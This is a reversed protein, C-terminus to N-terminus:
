RKVEDWRYYYLVKPIIRETKAEDWLKAAWHSDAFYNADLWRSSKALESRWVAVQMPKRLVVGDHFEENPNSLAPTVIAHQVRGDKSTLTCDVHFSVVDVGPAQDLAKLIEHLYDDTIDDDDDVFTLYEGAAAAILDNCKHGITRKRNDLAVLIEASYGLSMATLKAFLELMMVPRVSAILISLKPMPM